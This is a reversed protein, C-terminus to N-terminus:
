PHRLGFAVVAAIVLVLAVGAVVWRPVSSRAAARADHAMPRAEDTAASERASQISRLLKYRGNLLERAARGKTPHGGQFGISVCIYLLELFALYRAPDALAHQLFQLLNPGCSFEGHFTMSMSRAAWNTRTSWPMDLVAADIVVCLAYSSAVVEEAPLQSRRAREEFTRLERVCQLHLEDLNAPATQQRIQGSLVLLPVAALALPNPKAATKAARAPRLRIITPDPSVVAFSSDENM